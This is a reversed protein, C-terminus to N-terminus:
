KHVVISGGGLAQTPSAEFDDTAGLLNDYVPYTTTGVEYWIKM